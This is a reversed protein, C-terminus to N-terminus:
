RNSPHWIGSCWSKLTGARCQIRRAPAVAFSAKMWTRGCRISRFLRLTPSRRIRQRWRILAPAATPWSSSARSAAESAAADTEAIGSNAGQGGSVVDSGTGAAVQGESLVLSSGEAQGSAVALVGSNGPADSAPGIAGAPSPPSGAAGSSGSSTDVTSVPDKADTTSAPTEQKRAM